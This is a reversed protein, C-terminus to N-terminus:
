GNTTFFQVHSSRGCPVLEARCLDWFHMENNKPPSYPGLHTGGRFELQPIPPPKSPLRNVRMHNPNTHMDFFLSPGLLSSYSDNQLIYTCMYIHEHLWYYIYIYIVPTCIYIYIYVRIYM